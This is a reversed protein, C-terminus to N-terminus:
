TITEYGIKNYAAEKEAKYVERLNGSVYLVNRRDMAGARTLRTKDKGCFIASIGRLHLALITAAHSLASFTVIM